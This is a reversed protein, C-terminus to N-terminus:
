GRGPCTSPPSTGRPSGRTAWSPVSDLSSDLGPGTRGRGPPARPPRLREVYGDWSGPSVLVGPLNSSREPSSRARVACPAPSRRRPSWSRSCRSCTDRDGRPAARGAGGAPSSSSTSSRREACLVVAPRPAQRLGVLAVAAAPAYLFLSRGPLLLLGSLGTALPTTFRLVEAGYGTELLLRRPRHERRRPPVSLGRLRGARRRRATGAVDELRPRPPFGAGDDLPDAEPPVRGGVSGRVRAGSRGTCRRAAGAALGAAAYPEVFSEAAYPWLFTGAVFAAEWPGTADPRFARVLAGFALGALLVGCSWTVATLADVGAGGVLRRSAWAPGLTPLTVLSPYLGYKSHSPQSAEPPPSDAAPIRGFGFWGEVFLGLSESVIEAGDSTM